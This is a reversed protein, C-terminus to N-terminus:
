KQTKCAKRFSMSHLTREGQSLTVQKKRSAQQQKRKVAHGLRLIDRGAILRVHLHVHLPEFVREQLPQVLADTDLLPVPCLANSGYRCVKLDQTEKRLSRAGANNALLPQHDSANRLM